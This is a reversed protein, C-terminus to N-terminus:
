DLPLSLFRSRDITMQLMRHQRGTTPFHKYQDGAIVFGAYGYCRIAPSNEPFVVLSVRQARRYRFALELCTRIMQRGLGLGRWAPDIVCHGLWYHGFDGPMPNLELYGLPRDEGHRHFLLPAGEPAIWAIVKSATLPPATKPALWFLENESPAWGAVIEAMANDFLALYHQGWRVIPARNHIPMTAM